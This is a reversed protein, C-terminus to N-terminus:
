EYCLALIEETEKAGVNRKEGLHTGRQAFREGVRKGADPGIGYEKLTTPVGLSRFFKATLEIGAEARIEDTGSRVGWVREAYQVLKACKQDRLYKWLAPM